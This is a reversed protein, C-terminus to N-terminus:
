HEEVSSCLSSVLSPDHSLCSRCVAIKLFTCHRFFHARSLVSLYYPTHAICHEQCQLQRAQKQQKGKASAFMRGHGRLGNQCIEKFFLSSFVVWLIPITAHVKQSLRERFLRVYWQSQLTHLSQSINNHIKFRTFLNLNSIIRPQFKPIIVIIVIHKFCLFIFNVGLIFSFWLLNM